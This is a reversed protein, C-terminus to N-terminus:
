SDMVNLAVVEKFLDVFDSFSRQKKSHNANPEVITIRPNHKPEFLMKFNKSDRQNYPFIIVELTPNSELSQMIRSPILPDVFSTGCVLLVSHPVNLETCFRLNMQTYHPLFTDAYGKFSLIPYAIPLLGFLTLFKHTLYQSDADDFHRAILSLWTALVSPSNVNLGRRMRIAEGLKNMDLNFIARAMEYNLGIDKIVTALKKLFKLDPDAVIRDQQPDIFGDISGNLKVFNITPKDFGPNVVANDGYNKFHHLYQQDTLSFSGCLTESAHNFFHGRETAVQNAQREFLVDINTTFLNLSPMNSNQGFPNCAKFPAFFDSSFPEKSRYTYEGNVEVIMGNMPFGTTLYNHQCGELYSYLYETFRKYDSTVIQYAQQDITAQEFEADTEPHETLPVLHYLTYLMYLLARSSANMKDQFLLETMTFKNNGIRFSPYLDASCGSGLLINLRKGQIRTLLDDPTM